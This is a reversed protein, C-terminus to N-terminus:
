EPRSPPALENSIEAARQGLAACEENSQGDVASPLRYFAAFKTMKPLFHGHSLRCDIIVVM